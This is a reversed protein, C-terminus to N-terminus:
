FTLDSVLFLLVKEVLLDGRLFNLVELLNGVELLQDLLDLSLFCLEMNDDLGLLLVKAVLLSLHLVLVLILHTIHAFLM